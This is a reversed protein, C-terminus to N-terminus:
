YGSYGRSAEPAVADEALSKSNGANNGTFGAQQQRSRSSLDDDRAAKEVGTVGPVRKTVMPPM